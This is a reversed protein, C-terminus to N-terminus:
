QARYPERVHRRAIAALPSAGDANIAVEYQKLALDRRALVDYMEGAGLASKQRLEPSSNPIGAATEYFEVADKYDHRGRLIEALDYNPFELRPEYFGGARAQALLKHYAELADDNKGWDKLLNAEELAFLFNHPYQEVLTHVIDTADKYRQERRLFLALAVKADVSTESNANAAARLYELGKQKSGSLGVISIAAKVAWPLSGAVYSHVGVVTKADVYDPKLELVREHDHRAGIASRLAAFWSKDALALYTAHLGRAVGRAYLADVDNPNGQLRQDCLSLSKDTLNKIRDRTAPEIKIPRTNNIFSDGSYLTTNLAGARYLERFIIAALLHNVAAPDQPKMEVVREFDSIAHEYDTNYYHDIGSRTLAEATAAPVSSTAPVAPPAAM